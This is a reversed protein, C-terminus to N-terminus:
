TVCLKGHPTDMQRRSLSIGNGAEVSDTIDIKSNLWPVSTSARTRDEVQPLLTSSSNNRKGTVPEVTHEVTYGEGGAGIGLLRGLEKLRFTSAEKERKDGPKGLEPNPTQRLVEEYDRGHPTEDPSPVVYRQFFEDSDMDDNHITTKTPELLERPAPATKLARRLLFDNSPLPEIKSMSVKPTEIIKREVSNQIKEPFIVPAARIKRNQALPKKPTSKASGNEEWPFIPVLPKTNPINAVNNNFVRLSEMNTKTLAQSRHAKVSVLAVTPAKPNPDGLVHKKSNLPLNQRAKIPNATVPKRISMSEGAGGDIGIGFAKGTGKNQNKTNPDPVPPFAHM